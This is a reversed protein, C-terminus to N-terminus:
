SAPCNKGYISAGQWPVFILAFCGMAIFFVFASVMFHKATIMYFGKFFGLGMIKAVTIIKEQHALSGAHNMLLFSEGWLNVGMLVTVVFPSPM